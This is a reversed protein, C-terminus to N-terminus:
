EEDTEDCRADFTLEVTGTRRPRDDPGVLAADGSARLRSGRIGATAIRGPPDGDEGRRQWAEPGFAAVSPVDGTGAVSIGTSAPVGTTGDVEVGIVAQVTSGDADHGAVYATQGDLLCGDVEFTTVQGDVALRATRDEFSPERGCGALAAVLATGVLATVVPTRRRLDM